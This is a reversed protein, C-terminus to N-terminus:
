SEIISPPVPHEPREPKKKPIKIHDNALRWYIEEASEEVLIKEGSTLHIYTAPKGTPSADPGVVEGPVMGPSLTTVHEAVIPQMMHVVQIKNQGADRMIIRKFMVWAM